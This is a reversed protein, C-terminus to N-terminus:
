SRSRRAQGTGAATSSAGPWAARPGCPWSWARRPRIVFKVALATAAVEIFGIAAMQAAGVALWPALKAAQRAGAGRAPSLGAAPRHGAMRAVFASGTIVLGGAVILADAAAGLAVAASVLAPGAVFLLETAVADLAFAAARERDPVISAVITARLASTLPPVSVGAAVVAIWAVVPSATVALLVLAAANFAGASVLVGRGGRGALRATVPGGAVCALGFVAVALGAVAFSGTRQRFVLLLALPRMTQAMRAILTGSFAWRVPRVSWVQGYRRYGRRVSPVAQDIV